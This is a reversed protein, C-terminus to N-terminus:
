RCSYPRCESRGARAPRRAGASAPSTSQSPGPGPRRAPPRHPAAVRPEDDEDREGGDGGRWRPRGRGLSESRHLERAVQLSLVEDAVGVRARILVDRVAVVSVDAQVVVPELGAPEVPLVVNGEDLAGAKEEQPPADVVADVVEGGAEHLLLVDVSPRVPSHVEEVIGGPDPEARRRAEPPEPAPLELQAPEAVTLARRELEVVLEALGVGVHLEPPQRQRHAAAALLDDPTLGVVEAHEIADIGEVQGPVELLLKGAGPEPPVLDAAGQPDDLEEVVEAVHPPERLTEELPVPVRAIPHRRLLREQRPGPAQREIIWEGIGHGAGEEVPRAQGVRPEPLRGPRARALGCAG